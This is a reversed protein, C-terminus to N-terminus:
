RLLYERMVCVCDFVSMCVCLVCVCVYVSVIGGVAEVNEDTATPYHSIALVRQNILFNELQQEGCSVNFSASSDRWWQDLYWGPTIWVYKYQDLSQNIAQLIHTHIHTHSNSTPSPFTCTYM